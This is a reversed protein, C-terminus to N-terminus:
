ERGLLLDVVWCGRVHVGPMRCHQLIEADNCGAEELADALIPMQEFAREDYIVQAMSRVMGGNWVLWAPNVEATRFPNGFVDRLFDAQAESEQRVSGSAQAAFHAALRPAKKRGLRAAWGAALESTVGTTQEYAAKLDRMRAKGDAFRESTEVAGRARENMLRWIRRCCACAWLRLKRESAWPMVYELM